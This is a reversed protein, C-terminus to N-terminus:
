DEYDGTQSNIRLHGRNTGLRNLSSNITIDSIQSTNLLASTCCTTM